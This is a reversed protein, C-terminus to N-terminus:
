PTRSTAHLDDLLRRNFQQREADFWWGWKNFYRCMNTLHIWFMRFSHYSAARHAHTITVDPVFMTRYHRHLRRTLDIDEPYLFFREDFYQRLNDPGIAIHQLATLRLFMFCGMHYPVNMPRNYGTFALTYQQMRRRTLSRPLFRRLFLDTPTPLLRCVHQQSGDPYVVNPIVQAVDPHSTMYDALHELIGTGFHVDSNIVLHYCSSLTDSRVAHELARRIAINHGAGYGRNPHASYSVRSDELQACLNCVRSDSGNDVVHIWTITDSALLSSLCRSLEEPETHYTVISASIM